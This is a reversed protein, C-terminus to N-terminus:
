RNIWYLTRETAIGSLPVDWPEHPLHPVRQCEYALGVIKPKQWARRYSLFALSKDYFGAGMGLRNGDTDFGVLPLLILDLDQARVRARAPVVPEPIGFRNARMRAHEPCPAFWLRDSRIHSLVPLFFEKNLRRAREAIPAPDIEGDFPLYAAIRRSARFAALKFITESLAHSAREREEASLLRRAARLRQRFQNKDLTVSV